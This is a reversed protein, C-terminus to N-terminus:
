PEVLLRAIVAEAGELAGEVWSQQRSFAENALYVPLAPEPQAAIDLIQDSVVGARWFHWGVERPDAGWYM